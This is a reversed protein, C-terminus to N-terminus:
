DAYSVDFFSQTTEAVTAVMEETMDPWLPLRVIKGSLEETQTLESSLKKFRNGMPSQHLPVYHFSCHINQQQMFRIYADRQESNQLLIYFMHANHQYATPIVPAHPSLLEAYQNWIKLRKNTILQASELQALLFAANFDSPIYSSGIDCWSYKDAKGQTFQKRNTGKERIIEARELLKPNNIILAGGEGCQINKTEHFSLAALDGRTGVPSDAVSSMIAQAADEIVILGYKQATAMIIDMDCSVGAYHVPVIAKTKDTIAAEIQSEDINLTDPRIDVFVPTAGRLVFANATSVFTYSPMIVEDGPQINALLAAMELAATCSHTLLVDNNDFLISLLQQCKHTFYGNGKLHRKKIAKGVYEIENGTLYPHNFPIQLASTSM